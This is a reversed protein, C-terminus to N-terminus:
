RLCKGKLAWGCSSGQEFIDREKGSQGGRGSTVRGSFKKSGSKM